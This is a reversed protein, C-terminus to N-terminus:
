DETAELKQWDVRYGPPDAEVGLSRIEMRGVSTPDKLRAVLERPLESASATCQIAVTRPSLFSSKRLVMERADSLQLEGSGKGFFEYSYDGVVLMFGLKCGLRIQLKLESSLDVCSKNASVGIICDGRKTLEDDRTIEISNPHTALVNRHGKFYVVDKEFASNILFGAAGTVLRWLL